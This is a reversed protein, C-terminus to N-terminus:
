PIRKIHESNKGTAIFEHIIELGRKQGPWVLRSMSKEYSLWAFSQHEPSLIPNRAEEVEAAFLPMLNVSDWGPDYFSNVYPAVWLVKPKMGTEEMMERGAAAWATEGKEISGTVFQWLNPYVKEDRSRRLLLYRAGTRKRSFICVEVMTASIIAM